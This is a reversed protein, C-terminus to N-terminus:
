LYDRKQHPRNLWIEFIKVSDNTAKNHLLLAIIGFLTNIILTANDNYKMSFCLPLGIIILRTFLYIFPKYRMVALFTIVILFPLFSFALVGLYDQKESVSDQLFGLFGKTGFILLFAGWLIYNFILWKYYTSKKIINIM